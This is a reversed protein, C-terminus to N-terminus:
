VTNHVALMNLTFQPLEEQSTITRVIVVSFPYLCYDLFEGITTVLTQDLSDTIIKDKSRDSMIFQAMKEPDGEFRVPASHKRDGDYIYGTVIEKANDYQQNEKM